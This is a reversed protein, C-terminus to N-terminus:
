RPDFTLEVEFLPENDKITRCLGLTLYMPYLISGDVLLGSKKRWTTSVQTIIEELTSKSTITLTVAGNETAPWGGELKLHESCENQHPFPGIDSLRSVIQFEYTGTPTQLRYNFVSKRSGHNEDREDTMKIFEAKM